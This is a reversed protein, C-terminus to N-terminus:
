TPCRDGHGIDYCMLGVSTFTIYKRDRVGGSFQCVVKPVQREVPDDLADRMAMSVLEGSPRRIANNKEM